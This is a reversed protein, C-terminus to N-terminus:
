RRSTARKSWTSSREGWSSTSRARSMPSFRSRNPWRISTSRAASWATAWSLPRTCMYGAVLAIHPWLDRVVKGVAGRRRVLTYAGVFAVGQIGVEGALLSLALFALSFWRDRGRGDQQWRLHFLIGCAALAAVVLAYRGAWWKVTVISVPSLWTALTALDAVREPLLRRYISRVVLVFFVFWALSHLHMPLSKVGFLAHDLWMVASAVPRLYAVRQLDDFRWPIAGESMMARAAERDGDLFRFLDLGGRFSFTSSDGEALFALQYLDDAYFPTGVVALRLGLGYVVLALVLLWRHGSSHQSRAGTM